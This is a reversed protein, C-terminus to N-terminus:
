FIEFRLFSGYVVQSHPQNTRSIYLKLSSCAAFNFAYLILNKKDYHRSGFNSYNIFDAVPSLLINTILM